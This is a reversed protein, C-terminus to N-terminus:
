KQKKQLAKVQKQLETILKQQEQVAKVLPMVFASYGISYHEKSKDKPITVGNFNYGLSKAAQEVEQAIFGTQIIKDKEQNGKKLFKAEKDNINVGLFESLKNSNLKYTVPKLKLIFDLGPVNNKINTKFRGDSVLQWTTYGGVWTHASNGIVIRNTAATSFSGISIANTLTTATNNSQAGIAINGNGSTLAELSSSGISINRHGTLNDNLADKGIAINDEGTTNSTLAQSGIAILRNGTTNFELADAGVAVNFEGTTNLRLADAGIAVGDDATTNSSFAEAGIAVNKAGTSVRLADKGIAVNRSNFQGNRGAGAGIAVNDIGFINYRMAEEGVAVNNHDALFDDNVGSNFGIYVSKRTNLTSLNGQTELRLKEVGNVRFTLAQNDTTGIYNTSSSTGTNGTLDWGGNISTKIGIWSTTAHNWYYFGPVNSGSTTTLFILMGNQAALPNTAPFDDVRPILIGDTSAPTAQNSSIIDLTANPATTGIGIQAILIQTFFIIFLTLTKKM